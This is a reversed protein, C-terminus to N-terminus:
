IYLVEALTVGLHAARGQGLLQELDRPDQPDEQAPVEDGDGLAIVDYPLYTALSRANTDESM